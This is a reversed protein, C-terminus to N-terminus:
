KNYEGIGVRSRNNDRIRNGKREICKLEVGLFKGKGM